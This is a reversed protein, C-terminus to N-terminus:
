AIAGLRLYGEVDTEAVGAELLVERTHEGLAPVHSARIGPTAKLTPAPQGLALWDCRAAESVTRVLTVCCDAPALRRLWEGSPQSAFIGSLEAKLGSQRPEPAYQERIWEPRGLADCLGSWFKSELAGVAIWREDACRYVSYCAYQGSLIGEGRAPQQASAAHHALPVAL